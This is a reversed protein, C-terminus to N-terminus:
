YGVAMAAVEAAHGILSTMAEATMVVTSRLQSYIVVAMAAVEAAHGILSTMAEAAAAAGGQGAGQQSYPAACWMARLAEQEAAAAVRGDDDENNNPLVVQTYTHTYKHIHIRSIHPHLISQVLLLLVAPLMKVSSSLELM